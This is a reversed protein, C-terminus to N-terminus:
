KDQIHNWCKDSFSQYQLCHNLLLLPALPWWSVPTHIKEGQHAFKLNLHAIACNKCLKQVHIASSLSLASQCSNDAFTVDAGSCKELIRWWRVEVEDNNSRFFVTFPEICTSCPIQWLAPRHCWLFHSQIAFIPLFAGLFILTSRAFASIRLSMSFITVCVDPFQAEKMKIGIHQQPHSPVEWNKPTLCIQLFFGM